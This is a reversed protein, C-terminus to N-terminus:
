EPVKMFHNIEQIVYDAGLENVPYNTFNLNERESISIPHGKGLIWKNESFYDAIKAEFKTQPLVWTRKKLYVSEFLTAGANAVVFSARAMLALMDPPTWLVDIGALSIERRAVLPGYIVKVNKNGRALSRAVAESESNIDAGGLCILVYGDDSVMDRYEAIDPRLMFYQLGSLRKGPPEPNLHEFVSIVLDPAIDYSFFDLAVTKIGMARYEIILPEIGDHADFIVVDPDLISNPNSEELEASLHLSSHLLRIHVCHGLVRMRAVFTRMRKFHGYGVRENAITIVQVKM